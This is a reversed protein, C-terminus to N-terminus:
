LEGVFLAYDTGDSAPPGAVNEFVKGDTGTLTIDTGAIEISKFASNVTTGFTANGVFTVTPGDQLGTLDIVSSAPAFINSAAVTAAAPFVAVSLSIPPQVSASITASKATASTTPVAQFTAKASKVKVPASTSAKGSKTIPQLTTAAPKVLYSCASSVKKYRNACNTAFIALDTAATVVATTYIGCSTTGSGILGHVSICM